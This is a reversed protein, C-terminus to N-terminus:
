LASFSPQSHLDQHYIVVAYLGLAYKKCLLRVSGWRASGHEAGNRTNRESSLAIGIALAYIGLCALVCKPTNEVPTFSFPAETLEQFAALYGALGEGLHPALHLGLWGVPIIGLLILILRAKRDQRNTM